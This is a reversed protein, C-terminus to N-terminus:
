NTAPVRQLERQIGAIDSQNRDLHAKLEAVRDLYKQYNRAEDGRKEPQGNNYEALLDAQRSEAKRLEGELIRRADADRAKQEANDVRSSGPAAGGGAPANTAVRVPTSAASPTAAPRTGQVVTLNGGEVLKCHPKQAASVANTYENDGCRYIQAQAGAALLLGLPLALLRARILISSRM